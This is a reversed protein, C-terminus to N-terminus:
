YCFMCPNNPIESCTGGTACATGKSTCTPYCKGSTASPDTTLCLMGGACPAASDCAQGQAGGPVCVAINQSTMVCAEAAGCGGPGNCQQFTCQKRCKGAVCHLPAVCPCPDGPQSSVQLDATLGAGDAPLQGDPQVGADTPLWGGGEPSGFDPLPQWPLEGGRSDRITPLDAEGPCGLLLPLLMILATTRGHMSVM